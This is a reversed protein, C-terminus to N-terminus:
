RAASSGASAAAMAASGASVPSPERLSQSPAPEQGPHAGARGEQDPGAPASRSPELIPMPSLTTGHGLCETIFGDWNAQPVIAAGRRNWYALATAIPQGPAGNQSVALRAMGLDNGAPNKLFGILYLTNGALPFSGPETLHVVSGPSSKPLIYVTVPLNPDQPAIEMSYPLPLPISAASAAADALSALSAAAAQDMAAKDEPAWGPAWESAPIRPEPAPRLSGAGSGPSAPRPRKGDAQRPVPGPTLPRKVARASTRPHPRLQYPSESRPRSGAEEEVLAPFGPDMPHPSASFGTPSSAPGPTPEPAFGDLVSRRALNSPVRGPAAPDLVIPNTSSDGAGDPAPSPPSPATELWARIANLVLGPAVQVTTGAADARRLFHLLEQGGHGIQITWSSGPSDVSPRLTFSSVPAASRGYLAMRYTSSLPVPVKAGDVPLLELRTADPVPCPLGWAVFQREVKGAPGLAAVWVGGGTAESLHAIRYGTAGLPIVGLVALVIPLSRYTFRM